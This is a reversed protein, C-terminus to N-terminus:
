PKKFKSLFDWVVNTANLPDNRGRSGSGGPWYHAVGQLKIYAVETSNQCNSYVTTSIRGQTQQNPNACQSFRSWFDIGFLGANPGQFRDDQDGVMFMVSVATKPACANALTGGVGAVAAMTESLDCALRMAMAGGASFGTAYIRQKDIRLRQQVEAIVRRLFDVDDNPVPIPLDSLSEQRESYRWYHNDGRGQQGDPFVAVFGEQNAKAAFETQNAVVSASGGSGHMVLLLPMPQGSYQPPVHVFYTRVTGNQNITGRYSQSGSQGLALGSLLFVMLLQKM